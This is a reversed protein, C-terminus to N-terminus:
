RKDHTVLIKAPGGGAVGKPHRVDPGHAVGLPAAGDDLVVAQGRGEGSCVFETLQVRSSRSVNKLLM